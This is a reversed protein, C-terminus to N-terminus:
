DENQVLIQQLEYQLKRRKVLDLSKRQFKQREQRTNELLQRNHFKAKKNCYVKLFEMRKIASKHNIEELKKKVKDHHIKQLLYEKQMSKAKDKVLKLQCYPTHDDQLQRAPKNTTNPRYDRVETSFVQDLFSM